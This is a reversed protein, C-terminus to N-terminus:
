RAVNVPTTDTFTDGRVRLFYTGAALAAGDVAVQLQQNATVRGSHLTEVRRGLVDYLSVTVPGSERPTITVPTRGTIPTRGDFRVAVAGSPKLALTEVESLHTTGDFDVQKLRFRHTGPSLDDVTLSYSQSTSSNGAGDVWGVSEFAGGGVAHQVRFGSNNTESATTWNLVASSGSRKATFASLEVPLGYSGSNYPGGSLTNFNANFGPQSGSPANGPVTENSFFATSSVAFAFVEIQNSSTAGLESFPIQLEVGTNTAGSNDVAFTITQGGPGTGSASNGDQDSSGVFQTTPSGGTVSAADFFVDSSGGGTNFAYMADVEFDAKFDPNTGGSIYHGGGSVALATGASRGSPAGSGSVNIWVGIGNANSTPLVGAIGLYLTSNQTDVNKVIRQVDTSGFSDNSNQKTAITTYETDSLDGDVTQAHAHLPFLFLIGVLLPVLASIGTLFSVKQATATTM